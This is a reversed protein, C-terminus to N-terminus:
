RREAESKLKGLMARWNKEFEAVTGADPREADPHISQTLTVMTGDATPELEVTVLNYNKPVDPKGSLASFHTFAVKREPEFTQVVGKDEYNKGKWEGKFTIPHGERWDTEVEAGMFMVGTRQTLVQWVNSLETKVVETVRVLPNYATM